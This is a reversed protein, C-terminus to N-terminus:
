QRSAELEAIRALLAEVEASRGSGPLAYAAKTIQASGHGLSRAVLEPAMGAELALTANLGRLAQACVVPVGAADCCRKTADRVWAPRYPFLRESRLEARKVLPARLVEPLKLPRTANRTKGDFTGAAWLLTGGGDLDRPAIGVVEHARFGLVLAVLVACADDDEAARPVLYQYLKVADDYRHQVRRKNKRGRPEVDAWPNTAILKRKRAWEFLQKVEALAGQHTDPARKTQYRAYLQAARNPTLEKLAQNSVPALLGELRYRYTKCTSAKAEGAAQLDTLWDELAEGVSKLETQKRARRVADSAEQESEFWLDRRRADRGPGDVIVIRYRGGREYPGYVREM